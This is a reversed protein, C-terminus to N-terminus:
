WSWRPWCRGGATRGSWRVSCGVPGPRCSSASPTSIDETDEAAVGRWADDAEPDLIVPTTTGSATM